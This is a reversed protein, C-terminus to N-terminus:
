PASLPALEYGDKADRVTWGQETIRDRLTDAKDFDRNKKAAWRQEALEKVADPAEQTDPAQDLAFGFLTMTRNFADRRQAAEDQSLSGAHLEREISHVATFLKGLADPTNLNNAMAEYVPTFPGWEAQEPERPPTGAAAKELDAQTRQLRKLASQAAKLSDWTFNLPQRYHGAIMVYRLAMPTFGRERVEEMTYLNGLSKSMKQGEVMLHASHFWLRAFAHGTCAESQAIENEHHPFVLDVGGGHLDFSEGLYEISMASCELHWGPRGNGWPSDWANAGDEIKHAKWLVFDAASERDYEDNSQPGSAASTTIEREQLRSLKGYEAFSTVRFYVSGDDAVYAHGKDILQEIMRIQVPIHDVAGPEVHPPLLNLAACDAHFRETWFATFESLSKQEAASQRITKDDVDTINRVHKTPIGSAEIVRRLTDQVIFTRFNGIHAPGYVTPGCCYFRFTTADQPELPQVSRSMSDYITPRNM